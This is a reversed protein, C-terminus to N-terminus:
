CFVAYSSKVHSSNLRTSKRDEANVEGLKDNILDGFKLRKVALKDDVLFAIDGSWELALKSVYMGADLHNRIEEAGLDQNKCRIVASDDASDRLEGEGGLTCGAPAAGDRLGQARATASPDRTQRPRVPLRGRSARLASP